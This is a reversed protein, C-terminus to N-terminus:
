VTHSGDAGMPDAFWSGSTFMCRKFYVCYVVAISLMVLWFHFPFTWISYVFCSIYVFCARSRQFSLGSLNYKYLRSVSIYFTVVYVVFRLAVLFALYNEFSHM